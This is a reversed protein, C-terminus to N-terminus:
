DELRVVVKLVLKGTEPESGDEKVEVLRLEPIYKKIKKSLELAAMNKALNVPMDIFSMDLGFDRDFVVTGIPTSLLVALQELLAEPLISDQLKLTIM